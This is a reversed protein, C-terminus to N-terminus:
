GIFLKEYLVKLDHKLKYIFSLFEQNKVVNFSLIPSSEYEIM